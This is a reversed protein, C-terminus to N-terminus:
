TYENEYHLSDSNLSIVKYKFFHPLQSCSATLESGMRCTEPIVLSLNWQLFFIDISCSGPLLFPDWWTRYYCVSMMEPCWNCWWWWNPRLLNVSITSHGRSMWVLISHISFWWEMLIPHGTSNGHSPVPPISPYMSSAGYHNLSDTVDCHFSMSVQSRHPFRPTTFTSLLTDLQNRQATWWVLLHIIIAYKAISLRAILLVKTM